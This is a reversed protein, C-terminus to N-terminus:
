DSLQDTLPDRVALQDFAVQRQRIQVHNRFAKAERQHRHQVGANRIGLLVRFYSNEPVVARLRVNHRPRPFGLGRGRDRRSLRLRFQARIGGPYPRIDGDFQRRIQICGVL